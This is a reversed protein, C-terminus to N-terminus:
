GAEKTLREGQMKAITVQGDGRTIGYRKMCLALTTRDIGLLDATDQLGKGRSLAQRIASAKLKELNMEQFRAAQVPKEALKTHLSKIEAKDAERAAADNMAARQMKAIQAQADDLREQLLDARAHLDKFHELMTLKWREPNTHEPLGSGRM